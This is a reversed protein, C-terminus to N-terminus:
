LTGGDPWHSWHTNPAASARYEAPDGLALVRAIQRFTETQSPLMSSVVDPHTWEDLQLLETLEEPVSVRREDRTGLVLERYRVALFRCLEFVHIRPPESLPIGHADFDSVSPTKFVVDRLSLEGPLASVLEDSDPDQWGGERIPYFFRSDDNPHQALYNDYATRSVYNEPRDRERLRSGFTVVNLSPLGARPSFGFEEFVMAWDTASRYLSLRTAALYFYGNDLAPFVFSEAGRDLVRLVEDATLM